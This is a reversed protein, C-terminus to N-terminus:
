QEFRRTICPEEVKVVKLMQIDIFSEQDAFLKAAVEPEGLRANFAEFAAKDEFKMESYVDYGIDEPTGAYVTPPYNANSHDSSSPNAPIRTTYHRSHSVPFLNQLLELLLPIHHNEYHSRFASPTTGPKRWIYAVITYPMKFTTEASSNHSKLLYFPNEGYKILVM